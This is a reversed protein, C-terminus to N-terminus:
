LDHMTPSHSHYNAEQSNDLQDVGLLCSMRQPDNSISTKSDQQVGSEGMGSRISKSDQDGDKEHKSGGEGKESSDGGPINRM